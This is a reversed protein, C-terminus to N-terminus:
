RIEQVTRRSECTGASARGIQEPACIHETGTAEIRQGPAHRPEGGIRRIRCWSSLDAAKGSYACPARACGDHNAGTLVIVAIVSRASSTRRRNSSFTSRHGRSSCRPRRHLPQFLMAEVLLHYDPPALVVAARSSPSSTSRRRSVPLEATPRSSCSFRARDDADRHSSPPRCRDAAPFLYPCRNASPLTRLAKM